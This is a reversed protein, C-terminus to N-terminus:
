RALNGPNIVVKNASRVAYAYSPEQGDQELPNDVLTYEYQEIPSDDEGYLNLTVRYLGETVKEATYIKGYVPGKDSAKLLYAQEQEQYSITRLSDPIEPLEGMNEFCAAAYREMLGASVTLTGDEGLVADRGQAGNNYAIYYLMGWVGQASNQDYAEGREMYLAIGELIPLMHEMEAERIEEEQLAQSASPTAASPQSEQGGSVSCGAMLLVALLLSIIWPSKHGKVIQKM